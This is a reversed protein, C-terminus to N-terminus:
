FYFCLPAVSASVTENRNFRSAPWPRRLSPRPVAEVVRVGSLYAFEKMMLHELQPPSRAHTYEHWKHRSPESRQFPRPSGPSPEALVFQVVACVHVAAGEVWVVTNWNQMQQQISRAMGHPTKMRWAPTATLLDQSVIFSRRQSGPPWPTSFSPTTFQVGAAM